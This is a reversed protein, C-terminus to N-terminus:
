LCIYVNTCFFIIYLINYMGDRFAKKFCKLKDCFPFNTILVDYYIVNEKLYDSKIETTYLDTEIINTFGQRRLYDGVACTGCCPDYFKTSKPCMNLYELLYSLTHEQTIYLDQPM